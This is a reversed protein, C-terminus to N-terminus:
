RQVLSRQLAFTGRMARHASSGPRAIQKGMAEDIILEISKGGNGDRRERQSIQAGSNNVINIQVNGGLAHNPVIRGPVHPVFIEPGREGVPYHSGPHVAGGAARGGGAFTSGMASLFPNSSGALGGFMQMLMQEALLQAVMRKLTDTFSDLMGSLGDEFPNFLFEAFADQMNRAAQVAFESMTETDDRAREMSEAWREALGASIEAAEEQSMIGAEVAAQLTAYKGQLDELARAEAELAERRLGEVSTAMRALERETEIQQQYAEIVDYAAAAAALQEVTAGQQTLTWATTERSTMAITAAQRQLTEIQREIQKTFDEAATATEGTSGGRDRQGAAARREREGQDTKAWFQNILDGGRLLEENIDDLIGTLDDKSTEASKVLRGIAWAPSIAWEWWKVSAKESIEGLNEIVSGSARAVTRLGIFGSALGRVTFDLASFSEELGDVELAQTKLVDTVDALAPMVDHLMQNAWVAFTGRLIVLNDNFEQTAVISETSMVRGTRHAIEGMERLGDSGDRLMRVMVRGSQGFAAQAIRAAENADAANQIADAIDKFAEETSGLRIGLEQAVQALQGTGERAQGIRETLRGLNNDLAASEVGSLQAALRYEQIRDTSLGLQLELKGLEDATSTIESAWRSLQRVSLAVGLAGLIGQVSLLSRGWRQFASDNDQAGKRTGDLSRRLKQLERDTLTMAQVAGDSSGQIRVGFTVERRSM